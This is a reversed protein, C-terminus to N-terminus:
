RFRGLYQCEIMPYWKLELYVSISSLSIMENVTITIYICIM